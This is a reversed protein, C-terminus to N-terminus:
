YQYREEESVSAGVIGQMGRTNKHHKYYGVWTHLVIRTRDTTTHVFYESLIEHSTSEPSQYVIFDAGKYCLYWSM